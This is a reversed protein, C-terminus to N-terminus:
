KLQRNKLKLRRNEKVETSNFEFIRKRNTFDNRFVVSQEGPLHFTLREVALNRYHKDFAFFIDAM